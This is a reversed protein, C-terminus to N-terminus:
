KRRAKEEELSKRIEEARAESNIHRCLDEDLQTPLNIFQIGLGMGTVNDEDDKVPWTGAVKVQPITFDMRNVRLICNEFFKGKSFREQDAPNAIFSTGGASIDLGEFVENDIKFQIRVNRTAQLRYNSRQQSVFLSGTLHLSHNTTAKDFELKGSAFYQFRDYIAKFLVTEDKCLSSAIFKTLLSKGKITLLKHSEQYELLQFKEAEEPKQGQKWLIVEVSQKAMGTFVENVKNRDSIM